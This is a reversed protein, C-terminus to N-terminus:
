LSNSTWDYKTFIVNPSSEKELLRLLSEKTEARLFNSLCTLLERQNKGFDIQYWSFLESMSVTETELSVKVSQLCFAVAAATLQQDLKSEEYFRIPPCGLAGCNLAFHIRPDLPVCYQLRTDTNSFPPLSHPVPSAQNNRLIGNEIENLSFNHAGIQYAFLSFFRMRGISTTYFINDATIIKIHVVLSNYINIFFARRTTDDMESLDISPLSQILTKYQTFQSSNTMAKINVKNGDDTLFAALLSQITTKMQQAIASGSLSVASQTKTKNLISKTEWWFGMVQAKNASSPHSNGM